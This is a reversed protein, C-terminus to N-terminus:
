KGRVLVLRYLGEPPECTKTDVDKFDLPLDITWSGRLYRRATYTKVGNIHGDEPGEGDPNGEEHWSPNGRIYIEYTPKKKSMM